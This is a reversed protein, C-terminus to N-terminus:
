MMEKLAYEICLGILEGMSIGKSERLTKLKHLDENKIKIYMRKQLKVQRKGELFQKFGMKEIAEKRM